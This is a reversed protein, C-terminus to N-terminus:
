SHGRSLLTIAARLQFALYAALLFSTVASTTIGAKVTWPEYRFEIRHAGEDISIGRLIGEIRLIPVRVGDVTAQWGPYWVEGLVLLGAEDADTEVVIRNPSYLELRAVATEFFTPLDVEARSVVFARPLVSENRYIYTQEIQAELQFGDAELPSSSTVYAVNLLGLDRADPQATPDDLDPPLTPSYGSDDHGGARSLYTAYSSLQFPDVGSALPLSYALATHQPPNYTM